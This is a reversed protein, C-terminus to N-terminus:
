LRGQKSSVKHAPSPINRNDAIRKEMFSCPDSGEEKEPISLVRINNRQSRCELNEGKTVLLDTYKELTRWLEKCRTSRMAISIRQKAEAIRGSCEKIDSKVTKIAVLVDNRETHFDLKFSQTAKM